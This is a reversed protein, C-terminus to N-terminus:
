FDPLWGDRYTTRSPRPYSAYAEAYKTTETEVAASLALAAPEALYALGRRGGRAGVALVAAPADGAGVLVHATGGPCHFFDWTRLPRVEGEVVLVCEGALVLFDEQHNERHYLGLSQGPELVSLNIGFEKFPRKGEFSCGFGMPGYDRWRVERANLVFWGEGDPCLGFKTKRLPAEGVAM